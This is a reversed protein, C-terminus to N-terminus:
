KIRKTESEASNSNYKPKKNTNKGFRYIFNLSAVRTDRISYWGADTLQLNNITGRIRNTFL